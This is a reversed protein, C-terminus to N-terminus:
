KMSLIKWSAIDLVQLPKARNGWRLQFFPPHFLNLYNLDPEKTNVDVPRKSLPANNLAIDPIEIQPSRTCRRSAKGGSTAYPSQFARQLAVQDRFSRRAMRCTYTADM